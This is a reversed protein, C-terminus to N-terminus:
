GTALQRPILGDVFVKLSNVHNHWIESHPVGRAQSYWVKQSIQGWAEEFVSRIQFEVNLRSKKTSNPRSEDEIEVDCQAVLHVSSYM